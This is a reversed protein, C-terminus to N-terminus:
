IIAHGRSSYMLWLRFCYLFCHKFRAQISFLRTEGFGINARNLRCWRVIKLKRLRWNALIVVLFGKLSTADVM